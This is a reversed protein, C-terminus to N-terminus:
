ARYNCVNLVPQKITCVNIESYMSKIRYHIHCTRMIPGNQQICIHPLLSHVQLVSLNGIGESPSPNGFM